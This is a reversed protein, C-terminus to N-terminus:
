LKQYVQSTWREMFKKKCEMIEKKEGEENFIYAEGNDEKEKGLLVKIMKWFAKSDGRTEAIRREEWGSKKDGTMVATKGKQQYYRNKCIEIEGADGRKRAYRWERSYRSRLGINDILEKDVWPAARMTQRKGGLKKKFSRKMTHDVSLRLKDMCKRFSHKRGRMSKFNEVCM